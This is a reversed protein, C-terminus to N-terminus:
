KEEKSANGATVNGRNRALLPLVLYCESLLYRQMERHWWYIM